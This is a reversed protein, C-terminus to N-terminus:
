GIKRNPKKDIVLKKRLKNMDDSVKQEIVKAYIQTTKISIHGLLKSVTEMPVGNCLTVTTAFTHRAIHSTLHKEIECLDAIEGLYSNLKQNSYSPILKGSALVRPDNKYKEIIALPAPLLPIDVPVDTKKRSTYLWYGGDIGRVINKQNLNFVDIYALGTYCSFVFIDKAYQLRVINFEKKEIASLEDATLFQRSTKIFTPKFKMFPDGELWENRIAMNIVKRFREIHKMITNQECPRKQDKQKYARMFLDFDTLFKYNM